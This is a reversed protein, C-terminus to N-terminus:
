ENIKTEFYMGYPKKLDQERTSDRRYSSPGGSSKPDQKRFPKTPSGRRDEDRRGRGSPGPKVGNVGRYSGRDRSEYRREASGKETKSKDSKSESTSTVMKQNRSANERLNSDSKDPENEVVDAQSGDQKEISTERVGDSAENM